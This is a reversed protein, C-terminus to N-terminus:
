LYFSSNRVLCSSGMRSPSSTATHETPTFQVYSMMLTTMIATWLQRNCCMWSCIMMSLLRFSQSQTHWVAPYPTHCHRTDDLWLLADTLLMEKGSHYKIAIDYGQLHLCMHQLWVPINALNKKRYEEFLKHDSEIILQCDYVHTHFKETGFVCTLM